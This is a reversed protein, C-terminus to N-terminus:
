RSLWPLPLAKFDAEGQYPPRIVTAQIQIAGAQLTGFVSQLLGQGPQIAAQAIAAREQHACAQRDCVHGCCRQESRQGTWILVRNEEDAHLLAEGLAQVFSGGYTKMARCVILRENHSM